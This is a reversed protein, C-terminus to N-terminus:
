DDPEDEDENWDFLCCNLYGISQSSDAQKNALVAATVVANSFHLPM